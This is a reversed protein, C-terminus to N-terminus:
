HVFALLDLFVCRGLIHKSVESLTSQVRELIKVYEIVGAVFNM